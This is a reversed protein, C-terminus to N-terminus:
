PLRVPVVPGGDPWRLKLEQHGLLTPLIWSTVSLEVHYPFQFLMSLRPADMEPDGRHASKDVTLSLM